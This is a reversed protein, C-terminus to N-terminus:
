TKILQTYVNKCFTYLHKSVTYLDKSVKHLDTGLKYVPLDQDKFPRGQQRVSHCVNIIIIEFVKIHIKKNGVSKLCFGIKHYILINDVKRYISKFSTM